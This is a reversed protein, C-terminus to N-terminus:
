LAYIRVDNDAQGSLARAALTINSVREGDRVGPTANLLQGAPIEILFTNGAQYGVQACFVVAGSALMKGVFSYVNPSPEVPDCTIQPGRGSRRVAGVGNARHYDTRAALEGNHTYEVTQGAFPFGDWVVASLELRPADSAQVYTAGAIHEGAVPASMGGRLEFTLRMEGGAQGALGFTLRADTVTRVIGPDRLTADGAPAAGIEVATVTPATGGGQYIAGTSATLVSVKHGTAFGESSHVEVEFVRTGGSGSVAVIRADRAEWGVLATLTGSTTTRVLLDGVGVSVGSWNTHTATVLVTTRSTPTYLYGRRRVGASTAVQTHGTAACTFTDNAQVADATDIILLATAPSGRPIAFAVVTGSGAGDWTIADGRVFTGSPSNTAVYLYDLNSRGMGGARLLSDIPPAPTESPLVAPARSGILLASGSISAEARGAVTALKAQQGPATADASFSVNPTYTAEETLTIVDAAVPTTPVGEQSKLKFTLQQEARVM